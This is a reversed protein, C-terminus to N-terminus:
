TAIWQTISSCVNKVRVGLLKRLLLHYVGYVLSLCYNVLFVVCFAQPALVINESEIQTWIWLSKIRNWNQQLNYLPKLCCGVSNSLLFLTMQWSIPWTTHQKNKRSSLEQWQKTNFLRKWQMLVSQFLIWSPVNSSFAICPGHFPYLSGYPVNRFFILCYVFYQSM